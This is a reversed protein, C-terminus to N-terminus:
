HWPCEDNRRDLLATRPRDTRCRSRKQFASPDTHRIWAMCANFVTTPANASYWPPWNLRQFADNQPTKLPMVLLAEIRQAYLDGAKLKPTDTVMESAVSDALWGEMILPWSQSGVRDLVPCANDIETKPHHRKYPNARRVISFYANM